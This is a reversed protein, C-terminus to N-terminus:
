ARPETLSHDPPLFRKRYRTHIGHKSLPLTRIRRGSARAIANVLAPTTPVPGVEGLGGPNAGSDIWHLETPSTEPLALIEFGDYNGQVARGNEFTIQSTLAQTLGWYVGGEINAQTIDPDLVYGGDLATTIGHIDLTGNETLSVDVVQAIMTQFCHSFAMGRAQGVPADLPAKERLLELVAVAREAHERREMPTQAKEITRELLRIRYEIPDIRAREALEDVFGEVAFVNPGYGTTRWVMTPVPVDLIHGRVRKNTTDYLFGEETLGEETSADQAPHIFRVVPEAIVASIITPSVFAADFTTMVGDADVAARMRCRTHPRFHDHRIDQERSWVLQVPKGVAKSVLAAQVAYDAMLRRGFGGGLFTREVSVDKPDIGLAAAVRATAVTQGQTPALIRATGDRVDAICNMPEMTAHAQWASHYDAEVVNGDGAVALVTEVDGHSEVETWDSGDLKDAYHRDLSASSFDDREGLTWTVALRDAAKLAPWTSTAVVAVAGPLEVVDLVGRINSISARDISAVTGGPTDAHRIAAHVMGDVEADLGFIPNGVVKPKLDRRPLSRRLLTWESADKLPADGRLEVAAAAVAIEGYGVSRGSADHHVTGQATRCEEREVGWQIAAATALKERATAGAMRIIPWFTRISEANGTFMQPFVPNFYAPDHPAMELVTTDWDADMEEAVVAPFTTHIGQGMEAQSVQIVVAGDPRVAVWADFPTAGAPAANQAVAASRLDFGVLLVAAGMGKLVNRRSTSAVKATSM